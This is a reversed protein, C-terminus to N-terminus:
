HKSKLYRKILSLGPLVCNETVLTPTVATGVEQILYPTVESKEVDLIRVKVGKERLLRIAELSEVEGARVLLIMPM